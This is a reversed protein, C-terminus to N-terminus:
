NKDDSQTDNDTMNDREPATGEADQDAVTGQIADEGANTDVTTEDDETITESQEDQQSQQQDDQERNQRDDQENAM